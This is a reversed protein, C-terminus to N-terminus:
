RSLEALLNKAAEYEAFHAGSAMLNQLTKRAEGSKGMAKLVVAYHYYADPLMPKSFAAKQLLPFAQDVKNQKMLIWGYTDMIAVSAPAAEYARKAMDLAKPNGKQQYLWAINNLYQANAPFEKVLGEYLPIAKDYEGAELYGSGLVARIGADTKHTKFWDEAISFAKKQNGQQMLARFYGVVLFTDLKSKAEAKQYAALAEVPKNQVLYIDGRAMDGLSTGPYYKDIDAVTALAQAYKKDALELGVMDQLITMPTGLKKIDDQINGGKRSLDFATKLTIRAADFQKSAMEARARLHFVGPNKPDMKSLREFTALAGAKDGSIAQVKGLSEFVVPKEPHALALANAAEFAKDNKGSLVYLQVLRMAPAIDDRSNSAAKELWSIAAPINKDEEAFKALAVMAPVYTPRTALIENYRKAATDKHGEQVDIVALRMVPAANNPSLAQAREYAKRAEALKNQALLTEGQLYPGAPSKPFNKEIKQGAALAAKMDGKKLEAMVLIVSAQLSDPNEKIVGELTKIANDYEGLAIRSVAQRTRNSSDKPEAKAALDFYKASEDFKNLKMYAYGIMSYIKSDARDKDVLPQLTKIAKEEDGQRLFTMALVRRAGDHEPANEVVRSLNFAAQELNNLSFNVLGKLFVAPLFNDLASGTKQLEENAGKVDKQAWKLRARLYYATPHNPALQALRTLDANAEKDKGLEVLAAARGLLAPLYNPAVDVAASLYKLAEAFNDNIRSMEARILLADVNRPDLRLAKEVLPAAKDQEGRMLYVRALGTAAESNQPAIQQAKAYATVADDIRRLGLYANGRVIYAEAMQTGPVSDVQLENLINDYKRELEYARSLRLLIDRDKVGRQRAAKFEKEAAGGNYIKLYVDGLLMRAEVNDPNAQLANKLEITAPRWENKKIYERAKEISGSPQGFGFIAWAAQPTLVPGSLVGLIALSSLM